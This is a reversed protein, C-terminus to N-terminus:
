LFKQSKTALGLGFAGDGWEASVIIKQLLRFEKKQCTSVHSVCFTVSNTHIIAGGTQIM